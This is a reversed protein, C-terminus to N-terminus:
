CATRGDPTPLRVLLCVSTHWQTTPSVWNNVGHARSDSGEVGDAHQTTVILACSRHLECYSLLLWVQVHKSAQCVYTHADLILLMTERPMEGRRFVNHFRICTFLYLFQFDHIRSQGKSAKKVVVPHKSSRKVSPSTFLLSRACATLANSQILLCPFWQNERSQNQWQSQSELRLHARVCMRQMQTRITTWRNASIFSCILTLRLWDHFHSTKSHSEIKACETQPHHVPLCERVTESSISIRANDMRLNDLFITLTSKWGKNRGIERYGNDVDKSMLGVNVAALWVCYASGSM